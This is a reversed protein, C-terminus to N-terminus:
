YTTKPRFYEVRDMSHVQLEKVDVGQLVRLPIDTGAAGRGWVKRYFEAQTRVGDGGVGLIIDGVKIGAQDGPGEPSVRSVMLRGQVEDAAVGLWPRAPEARRGTRVLDALIPKLADIPVFMNGPLSAEGAASAERVILSGIGVLKLDRNVLAAGSWNM